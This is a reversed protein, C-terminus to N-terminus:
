SQECPSMYGDDARKCPVTISSTNPENDIPKWEDELAEEEARCQHWGIDHEREKDGESEFIM